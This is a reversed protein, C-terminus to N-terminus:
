SFAQCPRQITYMVHSSGHEDSPVLIGTPIGNKSDGSSQLMQVVHTYNVAWRIGSGASPAVVLIKGISRSPRGWQATRELDTRFHAVRDLQGPGGDGGSAGSAGLAPGCTAETAEKRLRAGCRWFHVDCGLCLLRAGALADSTWLWLSSADAVVKGECAESLACQPM